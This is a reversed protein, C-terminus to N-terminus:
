ILALVHMALSDGSVEAHQDYGKSDAHNFRTRGTTEQDNKLEPPMSSTNYQTTMGGLASRIPSSPLPMNRWKTHQLELQFSLTKKEM